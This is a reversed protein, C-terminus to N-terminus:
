CLNSSQPLRRVPRFFARLLGDFASRATAETGLMNTYTFSGDPNFQPKSGSLPQSVGGWLRVLPPKANAMTPQKAAARLENIKALSKEVRARDQAPLIDLDVLFENKGDRFIVSDQFRRIVAGSFGIMGQRGGDGPNAIGWTEVREEISRLRDAIDRASQDSESMPKADLTPAKGELLSKLALLDVYHVSDGSIM